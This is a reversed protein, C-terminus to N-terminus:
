KIDALAHFWEPTIWWIGAHIEERHLSGDARTFIRRKVRKEETFPEGTFMNPMTEQYTVTCPTVKIITPTNGGPLMCSKGILNKFTEAQKATQQESM